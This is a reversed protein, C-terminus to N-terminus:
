QFWQRIYYRYGHCGKAVLLCSVLLLAALLLLNRWTYMGKVKYGNIKFLMWLGVLLALSSMAVADQLPLTM